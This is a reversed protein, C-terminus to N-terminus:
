SDAHEETELSNAFNIWLGAFKRALTALHPAYYSPLWSIDRTMDENDVSHTELWRIFDRGCESMRVSPDKRLLRLVEAPSRPMGSPPSDPAGDASSVDRGKKLESVTAPSVGAERAIERLSAKPREAILQAAKRRGARPDVARIRGDRGVRTNLQPNEESSCRRIKGVTKPDLGAKAGIARDSLEPNMALIHQAAAKRDAIRLPLGHRLNESIALLFAEEESGEFFVAAIKQHGKLKAVALRHMGDIVQMTARHVLIPPLEDASVALRNIHTKSTGASRPSCGPALSEVEIWEIASGPTDRSPAISNVAPDEASGTDSQGM